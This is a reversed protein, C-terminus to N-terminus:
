QQAEITKARCQIKNEQTNEEERQPRKEKWSVLNRDFRSKM